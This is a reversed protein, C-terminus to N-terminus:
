EPPFPDPADLDEYTRVINMYCECAHEELGAKDLITIKGRTYDIVSNQQLKRAATNVGERRVGLMNAIMGQTMLVRTEDDGLRKLSLLLWRALQQDVTHHRNCIATQAIQSMLSQNFRLLRYQLQSHHRLAQHLKVSHIKLAEGPAQVVYQFPSSAKDGLMASIGCVGENGVVAIEGTSGDELLMLMSIIGSLPFYAYSEPTDMNHLITNLPLEVQRFHPKLRDLEQEPLEKLLKNQDIDM